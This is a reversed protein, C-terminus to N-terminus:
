TPTDALLRQVNRLALAMGANYPAWRGSLTSRWSKLHLIPIIPVGLHTFQQGCVDVFPTGNTKVYKGQRASSVRPLAGPLFAGVRADPQDVFGLQCLWYFTQEAMPLIVKFHGIAVLDDIALVGARAKDEPILIVGPGQRVLFDNCLNTVYIKSLPVERGALWDLYQCLRRAFNKKCVQATTQPKRALLELFFAYEARADSVQLTPDHGIVLIQATSLDGFPQVAAPQQPM